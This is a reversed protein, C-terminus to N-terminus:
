PTEECYIEALSQEWPLPDDNDLRGAAAICVAALLLLLANRLREDM